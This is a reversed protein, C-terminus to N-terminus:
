VDSSSKVLMDVPLRPSISPSAAPLASGYGTSQPSFICSSAQGLIIDASRIDSCANTLAKYTVLANQRHKNVVANHKSSFYNKSCFYLAYSLVVFLLSKSIAMQVTSYVSDPSIYPIKHIFFALIAYVVLVGASFYAKVLWKHSEVEHKDSEEKFYIAHQTVGMEAAVGKISALAEASERKYAEIEEFIEKSEDQISQIVSRSKEELLAFDTSKYMSYTIYSVLGSFCPDYRNKLANILRDREDVGTSAKYGLATDLLNFDSDASSSINTLFQDPFDDLSSISLKKYLDVLRRAPEVADKLNLEAGLEAERPLKALDFEQIRKLSNKARDLLQVSEAVIWRAEHPKTLDKSRPFCM